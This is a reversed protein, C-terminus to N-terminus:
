GGHPARELYMSVSEPRDAINLDVNVRGPLPFPGSGFSIKIM